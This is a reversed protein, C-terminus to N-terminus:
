GRVTKHMARRMKYASFDYKNTIDKFNRRNLIELVRGYKVQFQDAIESITKENKTIEECIAIVESRTLPQAAVKCNEIM